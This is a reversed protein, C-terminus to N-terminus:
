SQVAQYDHYAHWFHDQCETDGSCTPCAGCQYYGDVSDHKHASKAHGCKCPIVDAWEFIPMGLEEAVHKELRAGRSKKWGPLMVLETVEDAVFSLHRRMYQNWTAGEALTFRAPNEITDYPRWQRLLEEAAHFTGRNFDPYGTMPGSIYITSMAGNTLMPM